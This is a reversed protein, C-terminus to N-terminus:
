PMPEAPMEVPALPSSAPGDLVAGDLTFRSGHCPCDWTQEADNFGVICGLHTCVADVAHLRGEADRAVAVTAGDRHMVRGHGSEPLEDAGQRRATIRDGVFHTAVKLNNTVLDRSFTPV